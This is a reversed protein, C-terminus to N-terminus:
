IEEEFSIDTHCESALSVVKSEVLGHQTRCLTRSVFPKGDNLDSMMVGRETMIDLTTARGNQQNYEFGSTEIQLSYDEIFQPGQLYSNIYDKKDMEMVPSKDAGPATPNTVTLRFQADESIHQHLFNVVQAYDSRNNLVKEMNQYKNQVMDQTIVGSDAMVANVQVLILFVSLCLVRLM